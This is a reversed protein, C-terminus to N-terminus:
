GRSSFLVTFILFLLFFCVFFALAWPEKKRKNQKQICKVQRKLVQPSVPVQAGVESGLHPRAHPPMVTVKGEPCRPSPFLSAQGEVNQRIWCLQM